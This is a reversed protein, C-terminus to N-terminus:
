WFVSETIPRLMEGNGSKNYRPGAMIFRSAAKWYEKEIWNGVFSKGSHLLKYGPGKSAFISPSFINFARTANLSVIRPNDKNTVIMM